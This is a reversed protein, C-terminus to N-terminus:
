VLTVGDLEVSCSQSLHLDTSSRGIHVIFEGPEACWDMLQEDFFSLDRLTLEFEVKCKEGPDIQVKKFGKLEMKPRSVSAEVDELYLQVVEKASVVGNNKVEVSARIAVDGDSSMVTLNEYEFCTYSLGSGFAFLPEISESVYYRYGVHLGEAYVSKDFGYSGISHAPCEELSNPFTMPLRGSPVVDGFLIEAAAHGGEMGAYWTWLIAKARDVWPMLVPAGATLVVVTNPNVGLLAEILEDQRDPLNLHQRDKGELDERHTLGGCYIVADSEKALAVAEELGSAQEHQNAWVPVWGFHMCTMDGSMKYTLEITYTRGKEFYRDATRKARQNLGYTNILEVGDVSLIVYGDTVCGLAFDGSDPVTLEARFTASHNDSEIGAPPLFSDVNFSPAESYEQVVAPGVLECNAYYSLRWGKVGTGADVTSLYETSIPSLGEGAGCYGPAYQVVVSDGLLERIGDLMTVEYPCKVASSNGGNSHRTVANQGIVALTKISARELPLVNGENKLLVMAERATERAISQHLETNRAGRKREPEFAGVLYLVRLIRRVKDDLKEISFAGSKLGELFPNALYYEDYSKNTGMELDMGFEVAEITDHVGAWDSLFVGEFGWEGKLISNVLYRHHCCYQGRFKNYAGMVTLVQGEKVAAEFAPLYIERLTREDMEVDTADRNLEQSNAAYHKACAATDEAQIGRVAAVALSANLYPDESYYEFNRGCLPTRIINFGPGLIVDKGRDRAEAGLVHGCRKILDVNWTAAQATGTPLYTSYDDDWGAPEWSDKSIEERVGHPGDSLEMAPIGLREIGSNGFKTAAHCLSVKEESTLQRLLDEVFTHVLAERREFNTM